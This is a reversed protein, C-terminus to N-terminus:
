RCWRACRRASSPASASRAASSRTSRGATATAARPSRAGRATSATRGARGARRTRACTSWSSSCAAPRAARAHGGAVRRGPRARHLARAHLRRHRVLLRRVAPRGRRRARGRGAPRARRPPQAAQRGDGRRARVPDPRRRASYHPANLGTGAGIELVRGHSQAVLARRREALGAREAAWFFPDYVAASFRAATDMDRSVGSAAARNGALRPDPGRGHVGGVGRRLLHGPAPPDRRVGRAGRQRAAHGRDRVLSLLEEFAEHFRDEDDAEVAAVVANDLDNLRDAQDDPFRYQNETSIRVIM